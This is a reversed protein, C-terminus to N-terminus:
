GGGTPSVEGQASKRWLDAHRIAQRIFPDLSDPLDSVACWRAQSAEFNLRTLGGDARAAFVIPIHSPELQREILVVPGLTAELGTEERLERLAGQSPAEGRELWGGPLGWDSTTHFVHRLLLVEDLENFLVVLVGVRHRTVLVRSIAAMVLHSLKWRFIRAIAHQLALRVPM